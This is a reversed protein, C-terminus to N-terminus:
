KRQFIQSLLYGAAAAVLISEMPKRRVQVRCDDLLRQQALHFKESTHHVSELASSATCALKDIAQKVTKQTVEAAREAIAPADISAVATKASDVATDVASIAKDAISTKNADSSSPFPSNDNISM